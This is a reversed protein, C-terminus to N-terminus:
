YAGRGLLVVVFTKCIIRLDRALSWNKVYDLDLQVMHEYSLESRGSVQWPGTVGPLVQLRCEYGERDLDALRKSDRLPLPRPGVLSMEGRLVNSLQPLEDLSYRRLYSGVRTVRPDKRLKFLVGGESDNSDELDDLQHEAGVRMTRFKFVPFLLGRYGRRMQRFLVPGPSDLRILLAILGMVPMLLMLGTLAGALDISRKALFRLGELTLWDIPRPLAVQLQAEDDQVIAASEFKAPNLPPMSSPILTSM